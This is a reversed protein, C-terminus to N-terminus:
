IYMTVTLNNFPLPMDLYLSTLLETANTPSVDLEEFRMENVLPGADPDNREHVFEVIAGSVARLKSLLPDSINYKGLYPDYEQRVIRDIYDVSKTVSLEQKKVDSTDTTLQHRVYPTDTENIQELIFVGGEAMTNMQVRTFYKDVRGHPVREVGVIGLRSMPQQPPLGSVLAGIISGIHYGPVEQTVGSVSIDCIDPWILVIRREALALAYDRIAEAQQDRTTPRVLEYRLDPTTSTFVETMADLNFPNATSLLVRTDSIVSDVIYDGALQVPESIRIIDGSVLKTTFTEGTVQLYRFDREISYIKSSETTAEGATRSRLKFTNNGPTSSFSIGTGSVDPTVYLNQQLALENPRVAQIEGTVGAYAGSLASVVRQIDGHGYTDIGPVVISCLNTGAFIQAWSEDIIVYDGAAEVDVISVTRDTYDNDSLYATFAGLPVVAGDVTITQDDLVATINRKYTDNASDVIRIERGVDSPGWLDTLTFPLDNSPAGAVTGALINDRGAFRLTCGAIPPLTLIAVFEGSIGALRTQRVVLTLPAAEPLTHTLNLDVWDGAPDVALVNFYGNEAPVTAGTIEIYNGVKVGPLGAGVGFSGAVSATYRTGSLPSVTANAGPVAVNYIEATATIGPTRFVNDFPTISIQSLADGGYGADWVIDTDVYQANIPDVATVEGRIGDEVTPMFAICAYNPPPAPLVHTFAGASAAGLRVTGGNDEATLRFVCSRIRNNYGVVYGWYPAGTAPSRILLHETQDLRWWGNNASAAGSINVMDSIPNVPRPDAAGNFDPFEVTGRSYLRQTKLDLQGDIPASVIETVGNVQWTAQIVESQLATETILARNILGIRVRNYIGNPDSTDVIHTKFATHHSIEQSLLSIVYVDEDALFDLVASIDYDGARDFDGVGAKINASIDVGIYYVTTTTNEIAKSLSLALPNAEHIIGVDNVIDEENDVSNMALSIDTKLARYSVKVTATLVIGSPTNTDTVGPSIYVNDKDATFDTGRVLEFEDFTAVVRWGTPDSTPDQEFAVEVYNGSTDISTILFSTPYTPAIQLNDNVRADGLNGASYFRRVKRSTPLLSVSVQPTGTTNFAVGSVNIATGSSNVSNIQREGVDVPDGTHIYIYKNVDGATFTGSPFGELRTPGNQKTGSSLRDSGFFGNASASTIKTGSTMFVRVPYKVETESWTEETGLDVYENLGLSPYPVTLQAGSYGTAHAAKTQVNFAPGLICEPLLPSTVAAVAGTFRQIIKVGLERYAM